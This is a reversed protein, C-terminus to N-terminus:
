VLGAIPIRVDERRWWPVRESGNEAGTTGRRPVPTPSSGSALSSGGRPEAHDIIKGAEFSPTLQILPDPWLLGDGLSSLVVDQVREDKIRIFSSVYTAYDEVLRQRLRFVDVLNGGWAM